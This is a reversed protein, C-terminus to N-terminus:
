RLLETRSGYKESIKIYSKKKLDQLEREAFVSLRESTKQTKLDEITPEKIRHTQKDLVCIVVIGNPTIIPDSSMGIPIKAFMERFQPSMGELITTIPDAVRCFGSDKAKQIMENCNPSTQKMDLIYSKLKDIEDSSPNSKSFPVIIQVFKLNTVSQSGAEKKDKLLLIAYGYSNKVIARSGVAMKPMASDEEESLQGHFVWGIEGGKVADPSKSFQRAINGFDAGRSLMENLNNVLACTPKEDSPNSVPFFMKCIYYSEENQKEKIESLTRNMESESINIFKGFRARIYEAWSLNIRIQKLLANKSISKSKLLESFANSDLNNRKAIDSFATQVAEESIWGGKPAYKKACQWQLSEQIMEKLVEQSINAKLENTISGGTSLLIMNIRNELDSFTIIDGNVVAVIGNYETPRKEATNVLENYSIICFLAFIYGASLLKKV